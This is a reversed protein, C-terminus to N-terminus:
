DVIRIAGANQAKETSGDFDRDIFQAIRQILNRSDVSIKDLESPEGPAVHPVDCLRRELREDEWEHAKKWGLESLLAQAAKKSVKM